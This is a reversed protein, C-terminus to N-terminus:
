AQSGAESVTAGQLAVRIAPSSSVLRSFVEPVLHLMSVRSTSVVTANRLKSNLLGVEGVVAGATLQAVPKGDVRVEVDGDLIVYCADAPTRENILPWNAPVASVASSKALLELDAKSCDAFRPLAGLKAVLDKLESKSLGSSAM